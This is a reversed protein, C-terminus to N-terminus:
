KMFQSAAAGIAAAFVVAVGCCFLLVMVVAAIPRWLETRHAEKLAIVSYALSALAYLTGGCIPVVQLLSTTASAYSLARFTAEYGNRAGGVIQLAVHMVGSSVFAGILLFLPLLFITGLFIGSILTPSVDKAKEGLTMAPNVYTLAAQYLMTIAGTLWGFLVYFGLPRAFGGTIPMARFVAAPNAFVDRVTEYLAKPRPVEPREWAPEVKAGEAAVPPVGADEGVPLPLTDVAPASAPEVDRFRDFTSLPKWTEMPEQWALDSPLFRGTRLGEGVEEDTFQGLNQRNRNIFIKAM